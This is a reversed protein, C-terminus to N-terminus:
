MYRLVNPMPWVKFSIVSPCLVSWGFSDVFNVNAGDDIAQIVAALDRNQIAQLLRQTASTM